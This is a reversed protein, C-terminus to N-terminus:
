RVPPKTKTALWEQTYTRVGNKDPQAEWSRRDFCPFVSFAIQGDNRCERRAVGIEVLEDLYNGATRVAISLERAVRSRTAEGSPFLLVADRIQSLTYLKKRPRAGGHYNPIM